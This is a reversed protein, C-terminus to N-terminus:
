SEKNEKSAPQEQNEDMKAKQQEEAWKKEIINAREMKFAGAPDRESWFKDMQKTHEAASKKADEESM